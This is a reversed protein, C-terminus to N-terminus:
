LFLQLRVSVLYLIVFLLTQCVDFYTFIKLNIFGLAPSSTTFCANEYIAQLYITYLNPFCNPM